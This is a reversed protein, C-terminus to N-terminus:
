KITVVMPVEEGIIKEVDEANVSADEFDIEFTDGMAAGGPDATVLFEVFAGEAVPVATGFTFSLMGDAGFADAQGMPGGDSDVVKINSLGTASGEGLKLTVGNLVVDGNAASAKIGLFKVDTDWNDVEPLFGVPEVEVVNLTVVEPAEVVFLATNNALDLTSGDVGVLGSVTVTYEGVTGLVANLTLTVKSLDVADLAVSGFLVINEGPGKVEFNAVLVTESDVDEEFTLVINLGDLEASKLELLDVPGDFKFTAKNEPNVIADDDAAFLGAATVAYNGAVLAEEMVLTVMKKDAAVTFNVSKVVPEFDPDDNVFVTYNTNTAVAKLDEDFTLVISLGDESPLATQLELYDIPDPATFKFVKTNHELDLTHGDAAHLNKATVTYDGSVELVDAVWLVLGVMKGDEPNALVKSIVLEETDPGVIEFNEKLLDDAIIEETFTLVFGFSNEMKEYDVSNLEFMGEAALPDAAGEGFDYYNTGIEFTSGSATELGTMILRVTTSAPVVFPISTTLVVVKKDSTLGSVEFAAETVTLADLDELKVEEDEVVVNNFVFNEKSVDKLEQDFTLTVSTATVVPDGVLNLYDVIDFEKYNDTPHLTDGDVSELGEVTLKFNSTETKHALDADLNLIVQTKVDDGDEDEVFEVSKVAAAIQKEAVSPLPNHVIGFDDKSISDLEENFTVTVKKLDDTTAVVSEILLYDKVFSVAADHDVIKLWLMGYGTPLAEIGDYFDELDVKQFDTTTVNNHAKQAWVAGVTYKSDAATSEDLIAKLVHEDNAAMLVWGTDPIKEEFNDKYFDAAEDEDVDLESDWFALDKDCVKVSADWVIMYFGQYADIEYDDLDADAIKSMSTMGPYAYWNKGKTTGTYKDEYEGNERENWYAFMVKADEDKAEISKVIDEFSVKKTPYVFAAAIKKSGVTKVAIEKMTGGTCSVNEDKTYSMYGDTLKLMGQETEGTLDLSPPMDEDSGGLFGGYYLAAGVILALVVLLGLIKTFGGSKPTMAEDAM